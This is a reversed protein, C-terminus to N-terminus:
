RHRELYDEVKARITNEAFGVNMNCTHCLLERVKGTVHNHDVSLRRSDTKGCIACLGNQEAFMRDYDEITIGYNTKLARSRRTANATNRNDIHWQRHAEVREPRKDYVALYAKQDFM